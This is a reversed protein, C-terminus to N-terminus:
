STNMPGRISRSPSSGGAAITVTKPTPGRLVVTLPKDLTNIIEVKAPGGKPSCYTWYSKGKNTIADEVQAIVSKGSKLKVFMWLDAHEAGIRGEKIAAILYAATWEKFGPPITGDGIEYACKDTKSQVQMVHAAEHAITAALDDKYHFLDGKDLIAIGESALGSANAIETISEVIVYVKKEGFFEPKLPEFVAANYLELTQELFLIQKLSLNKDLLFFGAQIGPIFFRYRPYLTAIKYSGGYRPAVYDVFVNNWMRFADVKLLATGGEDIYEVGDGAADIQQRLGEIRPALVMAKPRALDAPIPLYLRQSGEKETAIEDIAYLVLKQGSLAGKLQRARFALREHSPVRASDLWRSWKDWQALFDQLGALENQPLQAEGNAYLQWKKAKEAPLNLEPWYESAVLAQVAPLLPDGTQSPRATPAPLRTSAPLSAQIAEQTPTASLGTLNCAILSLAIIVLCVVIKKM